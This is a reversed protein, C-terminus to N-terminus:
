EPESSEPVSRPRPETYPRGQTYFTLQYQIINGLQREHARDALVAATRAADVAEGFRGASGYAAALTLLFVPNENYTLECARRALRVAEDTDRNRIDPYVAILLALNSMCEPWDPKLRLAARYQEAAEELRGRSRLENALNFHAEAYDPRAAIAQRYATLAEKRMGLSQYINGLNSYAEALAPNIRVAEQLSEIAETTRGVEAYALGLNNHAVYNNKTVRVARSFLTVSDSWFGVQRHALVGLAALSAVMLLGLVARGWPWRLLLDRLGWAIMIFLGIYPIYTFRDASSTWTFQILGIVPLLTVIFWLWGVLLYERTRWLYAALLSIGGLLLLCVILRPLTIAAMTGVPYHLTLGRPWFMKGIYMAYSFFANAIRDKVPVATVDIIVAGAKQTAFTVIGSAVSLIFFPIKETLCRPDIHRGAQLPGDGSGSVTGATRVVLRNLPWYDLLLLLFPLTVLMPKALLGVAFLAVTLLYRAAGGRRAYGAYAVLTLMMFFASLVDKRESIWAVSEVHMPHLAFAAAVFASPWLLGTMRRLASFLLLTSALHLAASVLHMAGADPGFLQCDLMLSLWTLPQWYGYHSTTLAWRINEPRLGRLVHPNEYVYADDDYNLFEFSRVQLFVLVTSLTLATYALLVLSKGAREPM